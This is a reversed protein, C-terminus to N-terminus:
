RRERDNHKERYIQRSANNQRRNINQREQPTLRGGNEARDNHISRDINGQRNEARATEGRTLEGSRVGQAIRGQQNYARGNVTDHAAIAPNGHNESYFQARNTSANERHAVQESTAQFHQERSAQMEAASARANIGDPGGNFSVRNNVYQNDVVTRNYTNHIVTTNVHVVATNYFFHGGRWDGGVFGIGGYGFGYNVGGYFGVHPGWYGAHWAYLGNGWGWYGPTWLLGVAPPRVWVGPVWYYGADGYGWYGPTWLYGPAPCLPQTYVPLAPPAIAVSVFVGAFSSAPVAAIILALLITCISGFRPM